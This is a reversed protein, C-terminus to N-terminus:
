TRCLQCFSFLAVFVIIFVFRIGALTKKKKRKRKRINQEDKVCEVLADLGQKRNNDM